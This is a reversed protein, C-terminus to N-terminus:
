SEVKWCAKAKEGVRVLGPIKKNLVNWQAPTIDFGGQIECFERIVRFPVPETQALLFNRIGDGVSDYDLPANREQAPEEDSTMTEDADLGFVDCIRISNLTEDNINIRLQAVAEEHLIDILPTDNDVANLMAYQIWEIAVQKDSIKNCGFISFDVM